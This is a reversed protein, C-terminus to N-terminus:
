LYPLAGGGGGLSLVMKGTSSVIRGAEELFSMALMHEWSLIKVTKHPPDALVVTQTHSGQHAGHSLLSQIVGIEEFGTNLKSERVRM